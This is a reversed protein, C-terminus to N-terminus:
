PRQLRDTFCPRKLMEEFVMQGFLKRATESGALVTSAGGGAASTTAAATTTVTAKAAAPAPGVMWSQPVLPLAALGASRFLFQRRNM